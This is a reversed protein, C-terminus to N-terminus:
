FQIEIGSNVSLIDLDFPEIFVNIPLLVTLPKTDFLKISIGADAAFRVRSLDESGLKESNGNDWEKTDNKTNNEWM